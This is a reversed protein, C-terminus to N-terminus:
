RRGERRFLDAIKRQEKNRRYDLNVEILDNLIEDEFEEEGNSTLFQKLSPKKNIAQFFNKLKIVRSGLTLDYHNTTYFPINIKKSAVFEIEINDNEAFDKILQLQCEVYFQQVSSLKIKCNKNKYHLDELEKKTYDYKSKFIDKFLQKETLNMKEIKLKSLGKIHGPENSSDQDAKLARSKSRSKDKQDDEEREEEDKMFTEKSKINLEKKCISTIFKMFEIYDICDDGNIDALNVIELKQSDNIQNGIYNSLFHFFEERSLTGDENLDYEEFLSNKRQEKLLKEGIVVLV